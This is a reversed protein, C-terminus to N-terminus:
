GIIFLSRFFDFIPDFFLLSFLLIAVVIIATIFESPIKFSRKKKKDVNSEYVNEYKFSQSTDISPPVNQKLADYNSKNVVSSERTLNSQVIINNNLSLNNDVNTSSTNNVNVSTTNNVFSDSNINQSNNELINSTMASNMNIDPNGIVTNLNGTAKYPVTDRNNNLDNENM